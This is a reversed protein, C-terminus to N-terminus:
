DANGAAVASAIAHAGTDGIHCHHLRLVELRGGETALRALATAGDAGISGNSSLDMETLSAVAGEMIGDVLLEVGRDSLHPHKRLGLYQLSRNYRMASALVRATHEGRDFLRPNSLDLHSVVTASHLATGIATLGRTGIECDALSLWHLSPHSTILGAVAGACKDSAANGQLNVQELLQCDYFADVLAACSSDSIDNCSLDIKVLNSTRLLSALRALNNDESEVGRASVTFKRPETATIIAQIVALLEVLRLRRGLARVEPLNASVDIVIIPDAVELQRKVFAHVQVGLRACESVYKASLSM